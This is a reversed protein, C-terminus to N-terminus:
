GAIGRGDVECTRGAPRVDRQECKMASVVSDDGVQAAFALVLTERGNRM